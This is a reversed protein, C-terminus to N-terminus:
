TSEITSAYAPLETTPQSGHMSTWARAITRDHPMHQWGEVKVLLRVRYRAAQWWEKTSLDQPIMALAGCIAPQRSRARNASAVAARQADADGLCRGVFAALQPYDVAASSGAISSLVAGRSKLLSSPASM